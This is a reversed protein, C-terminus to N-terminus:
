SMAKTGAWVVQSRLAIFVLETQPVAQGWDGAPVVSARKGVLQFLFRSSPHEALYVHGKGRVTQPPLASLLAQFGAQTFPTNEQLQWSRFLEQAPPLQGPVPLNRDTGGADVGLLFDVTIDQTARGIVLAGPAAAELFARLTSQQDGSVLDTKTLLIVDAHRLQSSILAREQASCNQWHDCDFTTLILELSTFARMADDSLIRALEGANSVGSAEILIAEPHLGSRLVRVIAAHLGGELSCCICGNELAVVGDVAGEILKEDVNIAGFDNVLVALRRGQATALLRNLVTTKGSGLYGTILMIPVGGMGQREGAQGTM